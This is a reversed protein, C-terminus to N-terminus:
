VREEQDTDFFVAYFSGTIPRVVLNLNAIIKGKDFGEAIAKWSATRKSAELRIQGSTDFVIYIFTDNSQSYMARCLGLQQPPTTDSIQTLSCRSVYYPILLLETEFAVSGLWDDYIAPTVFLVIHAFFLGALLLKERFKVFFIGILGLLTLWIANIPLGMAYPYIYILCQSSITIMMAYVMIARPLKTALKM